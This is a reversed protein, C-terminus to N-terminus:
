LSVENRMSFIWFETAELAKIEIEGHGKIGIGDGSKLKENQIEGLGQVVQIWCMKYIPQSMIYSAHESLKLRFIEVDQHISISNGRGDPSFLLVPYGLGQDENIHLYKYSPDVGKVKPTIWIQIFHTKKEKEANMESHLVGKGASIFQLDGAELTRKFGLNDQHSLSGELVYSIIEIDKHGHAHFGRQAAVYDENLVRLVGFHNYEPDCFKGFSFTHYSELWSTKTLGREKSKRIILDL